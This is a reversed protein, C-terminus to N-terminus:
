TIPNIRQFPRTLVGDEALSDVARDERQFATLRPEVRWGFYVANQQLYGKTRLSHTKHKLIFNELSIKASGFAALPAQNM